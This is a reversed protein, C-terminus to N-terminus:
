AKIRPLQIPYMQHMYVCIWMLWMCFTGMFTFIFSMWKYDKRKQPDQEDKTTFYSLVISVIIWLVVYIITGNRMVKHYDDM